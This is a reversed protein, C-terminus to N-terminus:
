KHIIKEYYKSAQSEVLPLEISQLAYDRFEVVMPGPITIDFNGVHPSETLDMNFRLYWDYSLPTIGIKVDFHDLMLCQIRNDDLLISRLEFFSTERQYFHNDDHELWDEFQYLKAQSASKKEFFLLVLNLATRLETFEVESSTSFNTGEPLAFEPRPGFISKIFNFV